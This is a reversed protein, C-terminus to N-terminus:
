RDLIELSTQLGLKDLEKRFSWLSMTKPKQILIRLNDSSIKNLEEQKTWRLADYILTHYHQIPTNRAGIALAKVEFKLTSVEEPTMKFCRITPIAIEM